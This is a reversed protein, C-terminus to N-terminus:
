SFCVFVAISSLLELVVNGLLVMVDGLQRLSM